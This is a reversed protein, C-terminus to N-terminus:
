VIILRVVQVTTKLDELFLDIIRSVTYPLTMNGATHPTILLNPCTWLSDEAPIPEEEFVDLAASLRGSRLEKELDNQCIVTGRGVNIVVAGDPLRSLKNKGLMGATDPTGPLSLILVDTEPLVDELNEIRVIKDFREGPNNGSRNVGTLCSPSFSRLRIATEQGIDGTGILTIRSDRISRVPLDRIWQREAIIRSYDQQRRLIELLLM